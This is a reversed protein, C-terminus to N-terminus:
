SKTMTGRLVPGAGADVQLSMQCYSAMNAAASDLPCGRFRDASETWSGREALDFATNWDALPMTAGGSSELVAEWVSVPERKGPLRVQGMRRPVVLAGTSTALKADLASQQVKGLLTDSILYRTGLHKNVAELRSATNVTDGLATYNLRSTSGFNGVLADGCHAGARFKVGASNRLQGSAASRGSVPPSGVDSDSSDSKDQRPHVNIVRGSSRSVHSGSTGPRSGHDSARVRADASTRGLCWEMIDGFAVLVRRHMSSVPKPAGWFAMVCDGIFKDVTGSHRMVIDSVAAIAPTCWQVVEAPTRQECYMTFNEIDVFMVAINTKRLGGEAVIVGQLLGAVVTEPVYKAFGSLADSMAQQTHTLLSLESVVSDHKNNEYWEFDLELMQMNRKTARQVPSAVCLALAIMVVAGVPLVVCFVVILSVLRADETRSEFAIVASEVQVGAQVADAAPQVTLTYPMVLLTCWRVAQQSTVASVYVRLSAHWLEGADTAVLLTGNQVFPRAADLKTRVTASHRPLIPARDVSSLFACQSQVWETMEGAEAVAQLVPDETALVHTCNDPVDTQLYTPVDLVGGIACKPTRTSLGFTSMLIQLNTNGLVRAGPLPLQLDSVWMTLRVTDPVDLTHLEDVLRAAIPALALGFAVRGMVRRPAPQSASGYFVPISMELLMGAGVGPSFPVGWVAEGYELNTHGVTWNDYGGNWIPPSFGVTPIPYAEWYRLNSGVAPYTLDILFDGDQTKNDTLPVAYRHSGNAIWLNLGSPADPFRQPALGNWVIGNNTNPIGAPTPSLFLFVMLVVDEIDSWFPLSLEVLRRAEAFRDEYRYREISIPNSYVTSIADFFPNTSNSGLHAVKWYKILNDKVPKLSSDLNQAISLMIRTQSAVTNNVIRDSVFVLSNSIHERDAKFDELADNAFTWGIAWIVIGVSILLLSSPVALFVALHIGGTRKIDGRADQDPRVKRAM